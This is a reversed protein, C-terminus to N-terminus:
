REALKGFLRVNLATDVCFARHLAIAVCMLAVFARASAYPSGRGVFLALLATGIVDFAALGFVRPGHVGVGPRGLVDRYPCLM